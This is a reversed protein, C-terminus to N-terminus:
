VLRDKGVRLWVEWWIQQNSAPLDRRGDMWLAELAARRIESISDVLAQNKPKGSPSERKLYGKVLNEFHRLKGEPVFVTALTKKGEKRVALLEIGSRLFELSDLKLDFDPESEFTLCIGEKADLGFAIRKQGLEKAEKTLQDLQGILKKGHARRNRQPFQAGRGGTSRPVYKETAATAHILLHRLKPNHEPM